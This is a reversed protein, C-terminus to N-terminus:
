VGRLRRISITNLALNLSFFRLPRLSIVIESHACIDHVIEPSAKLISVVGGIPLALWAKLAQGDLCNSRAIPSLPRLEASIPEANVVTSPNPTGTNEGSVGNWCNPTTAAILAYASIAATGTTGRRHDHPPRVLFRRNRRATSRARVLRPSCGYGIERRCRKGGVM